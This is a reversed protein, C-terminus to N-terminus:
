ADSGFIYKSTDVNKKTKKKILLENLNNIKGTEKNSNIHKKNSNNTINQEEASKNLNTKRKIYKPMKKHNPDFLKKNLNKKTEFLSKLPITNLSQKELQFNKSLKNDVSFNREDNINNHDFSMSTNLFVKLEKDKKNVIPKILPIKIYKEYKEIKVESLKIEENSNTSKIKNTLNKNFNDELIFKSIREEIPQMKSDSNDSQMDRNIITFNTDSNLKKETEIKRSYNLKELAKSKNYVKPPTIDKLIENINESNM